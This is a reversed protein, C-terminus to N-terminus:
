ADGSTQEPAVDVVGLSGEFAELDADLRKGQRMYKAIMEELSTGRGAFGAPGALMAEILEDSAALSAVAVQATVIASLIREASADAFVDYTRAVDLLRQLAQEGRPGLNLTISISHMAM